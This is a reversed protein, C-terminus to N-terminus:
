RATAYHPRSGYPRGASPAFFIPPYRDAAEGRVPRAPKKVPAAVPGRPGDCGVPASTLFALLLANSAATVAMPDPPSRSRSARRPVCAEGRVPYPITRRHRHHAAIAAAETNAEAIAQAPKNLNLGRTAKGPRVGIGPSACGIAASELNPI